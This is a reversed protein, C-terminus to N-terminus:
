PVNYLALLQSELVKTEFNPALRRSYITAMIALRLQFNQLHIYKRAKKSRESSTKDATNWGAPAPKSFLNTERGERLKQRTQFTKKWYFPSLIQFMANYYLISTTKYSKPLYIFLKKGRFINEVFTKSYLEIRYKTELSFSLQKKFIKNTM